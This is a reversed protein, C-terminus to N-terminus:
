DLQATASHVDRVIAALPLEDWAVDEGNTLASPHIPPGNTHCQTVVDVPQDGAERENRWRSRQKESEPLFVWLDVLQATECPRYGLQRLTDHISCRLTILLAKAEGGASRE